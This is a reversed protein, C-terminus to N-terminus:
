EGLLDGAVLKGILMEITMPSRTESIKDRPGLLSGAAGPEIWVTRDGILGVMKISAIADEHIKVGNEIKLTVFAEYEALRISHVDGVEVGAIEVPDGVNLGSVYAFDAHLLYDDFYESRLWKIGAFVGFAVALFVVLGTVIELRSQDTGSFRGLTARQQGNL